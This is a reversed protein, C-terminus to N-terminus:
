SVACVGVPERRTYCLNNGEVPITSGKIKDAWGAYYRFHQYTLYVDASTGYQGEHGLPKGNDLSELEELYQSDAKILDALRLLLDRRATGDTSRWESGLEFAKKAAAM